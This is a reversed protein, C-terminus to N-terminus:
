MVKKWDSNGCNAELITCVIGTTDHVNESKFFEYLFEIM